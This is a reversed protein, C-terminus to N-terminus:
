FKCPMKEGNRRRAEQMGRALAVAQASQQPPCTEPAANDMACTAFYRLEAALADDVSTNLLTTSEGYRSAPRGASSFDLVGQDFTVTYEMAFPFSGALHWGGSIVVAPGNPYHLQADIIDIGAAADEVGTASIA